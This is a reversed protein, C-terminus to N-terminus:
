SVSPSFLFGASFESPYKLEEVALRVQRGGYGITTQSEVSFLFASTWSGVNEVCVVQSGVVKRAYVILWWLSGFATWSGLFASCYLLLIWRWKAELLTTFYDVLFQERKNPLKAPRINKCGRATIVREGPRANNTITAYNCETISIQRSTGLGSADM